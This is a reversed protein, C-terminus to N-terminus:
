KIADKIAQKVEDPLAQNMLKVTQATEQAFHANLAAYAKRFYARRAKSYEAASEFDARKRDFSISTRRLASVQMHAIHIIIQEVDKIDIQPFARWALSMDTALAGCTCRIFKKLQRKNAM